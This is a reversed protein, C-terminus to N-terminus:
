FGILIPDDGATIVKVQGTLRRNTVSAVFVIASTVEPVSLAAHLLLSKVLALPPSHGLIQTFYPVGQSTDFYAEGAFLRLASAVDQAVSYPNTCMAINGAADVCLDWSDTTLALTNM